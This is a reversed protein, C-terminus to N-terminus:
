RQLVLPMSVTHDDIRARLLYIGNPKGSLDITTASPHQTTEMTTELVTQGLLNIVYISMRASAGKPYDIQFLGSGPNPYVKLQFAATQNLSSIEYSVAIMLTDRTFCITDEVILQVEFIGEDQYDHNIMLGNGTQGDGFSWYFQHGTSGTADFSFSGPEDSTLTFFAVATDTSVTITTQCTDRNGCADEAILSVPLVGLDECNLFEPITSLTLTTCDDTSGQNIMEPDILVDESSLLQVQASRCLAVPAIDDTKEIFVDFRSTNGCLDTATWMRVLLLPPCGGSALISDKYSLAVTGCSDMVLPPLVPIMEDCAYIYSDANASSFQPLSKDVVTISQIESYSNGCEDTAIYTRFITFQFICNGPLTTEEWTVIPTGCNDWAEYDPTPVEDYCNITVDNGIYFFGPLTTDEVTITQSCTNTIGEATASFTRIIEGTENCETLGSTDDQWSVEPDTDCEGTVVVVPEGTISPHINADCEVVVDSPCDITFACPPTSICGILCNANNVNDLILAGPQPGFGDNFNIGVGGILHCYSMITGGGPPNPPNSNCNGETYGANGGCNDIRTNNGNWACAHTHPSGLNHGIEHTCVYVSWSYTPVNQFSSSITSFAVNWPDNCLGDLYAVGGGGKYNVLHGLDGNFNGNKQTRFQSLFQGDTPGTYPSPLNWIFIENAEMTIGENAYMTFIENLLGTMYNTTNAGKNQFIDYDVEWYTSVCESNFRGAKNKPAQLKEPHTIAPDDTSCKNPNLHSITRDNYFIHTGRSGANELPGLVYNGNDTSVIGRVHDKYFSLAVLSHPDDKVIGRYFAGEIEKLVQGEAFHVKMTESGIRTKYVILHIAKGDPTPITVELRSPKNRAIKTIIKSDPLLGFGDTRVEAPIDLTNPLLAESFPAVLQFPLGKAQLGSVKESVRKVPAAQQSFTPFLILLSFLLTFTLRSSLRM